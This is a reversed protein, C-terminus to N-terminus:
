SHKPMGDQFLYSVCRIQRCRLSKDLVEEQIQFKEVWRDGSNKGEYRFSVELRPQTLHLGPEEEVGAKDM